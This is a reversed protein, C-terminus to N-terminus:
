LAFKLGAGIGFQTRNLFLLQMKIYVDVGRDIRFDIGIDWFGFTGPVVYLTLDSFIGINNNFNYDVGGVFGFIFQAEGGFNLGFNLGFYAAGRNGVFDFVLTPGASVNGSVNGQFFLNVYGKIGLNINNSISTVNNAYLSADIGFVVPNVFILDIGGRISFDQAKAQASFGIVTLLIIVWKRM